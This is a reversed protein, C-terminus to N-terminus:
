RGKHDQMFPNDVEMTIAGVHYWDTVFVSYAPLVASRPHVVIMGYLGDLRQSMHHSHYWHTGSPEARFIYTFYQRPLIPCQTLYPVGDMYNTMRQDLGHWHITTAEGHLGNYVNM